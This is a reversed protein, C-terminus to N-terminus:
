LASGLGGGSRHASGRRPATASSRSATPRNPFPPGVLVGREKSQSLGWNLFHDFAFPLYNQQNPAGLGHDGDHVRVYFIPRAPNTRLLEVVFMDASEVPSNSDRSGHAVFTPVECSRMEDLPTSEVAYSRWRILSHGRWPRQSKPDIVTQIESFAERAAEVTGTRHAYIAFDVLQSPGASGFIGVAAIRQRLAHAVGAALDGGESHGAVLVPGVWPERSLSDVADVIDRVRERKSVGAEYEPSCPAREDNHDRIPGFSAVGRKEIAAFHARSLREEVLDGFILSSSGRRKGGGLDTVSFL